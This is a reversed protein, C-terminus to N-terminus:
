LLWRCPEEIPSQYMDWVQGQVQLIVEVELPEELVEEVLADEVLDEVLEELPDEQADVAEELANPAQKLWQQLKNNTTRQSRPAFLSKTISASLHKEIMRPLFDSRVRLACYQTGTAFILRRPEV